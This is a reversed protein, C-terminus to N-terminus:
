ELPIVNDWGRVGRKLQQEKLIHKRAAIRDRLRTYNHFEFDFESAAASSLVIWEAM